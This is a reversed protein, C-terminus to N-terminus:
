PQEGNAESQVVQAVGNSELITMRLGGANVVYIASKQSLRLVQEVQLANRTAAPAIAPVGFRSLWGRKRALLLLAALGGLLLVLVVLVDVVGTDGAPPEPRFPIPTSASTAALSLIERM